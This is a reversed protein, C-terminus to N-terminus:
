LENHNYCKRVNVESSMKVSPLFNISWVVWKFTKISFFSTKLYFQCGKSNDTQSEICLTLYFSTM